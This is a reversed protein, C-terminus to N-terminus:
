WRHTLNGYKFWPEEHLNWWKGIDGEKSKDDDHM